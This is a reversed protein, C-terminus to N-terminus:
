SIESTVEDIWGLYGASGRKVDLEILEPTDYSHHELLYAQIADYLSHRTKLLMLVESEQEVNAEWTYISNIPLLQVCAVLKQSVLGKGLAQAEDPSGATTLLVSYGTKM